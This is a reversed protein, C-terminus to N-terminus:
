SVSTAGTSQSPFSPKTFADDDDESSRMAVDSRDGSSQDLLHEPSEVSPTRPSRGEQGSSSANDPEPSSLSLRPADRSRPNPDGSEDSQRGMGMDEERQITSGVSEVPGLGTVAGITSIWMELKAVQLRDRRIDHAMSPITSVIRDRASRQFPTLISLCRLIKLQSALDGQLSTLRNAWQQFRDQVGSASLPQVNEDASLVVDMHLGSTQIASAFNILRIWHNMGEENAAQLFYTQGTPMVLRFTHSHIAVKDVVAFSNELPVIEDPTAGSATSVLVGGPLKIAEGQDLESQLTIALSPDKFFLLQTATLIVTWSKWKRSKKRGGDGPGDRRSLLGVKAVKYTTHGEPLTSKSPTSGLLGGGSAKRKPALFQMLRADSFVKRALPIDVSPRIGSCSFPNEAPVQHEVNIRLTDLSGASIMPYIDLKASRPTQLISPGLPTSPRTSAPSTPGPTPTALLHDDEEVYM